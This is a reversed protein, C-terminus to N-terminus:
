SSRLCDLIMSILGYHERRSVFSDLVEDPLKFKEQLTVHLADLALKKQAHKSDDNPIDQKEKKQIPIEPQIHETSLSQIANHHDIRAIREYGNFLLTKAITWTETNKISETFRDVANMLAYSTDINGAAYEEIARDVYFQVDSIATPKDTM